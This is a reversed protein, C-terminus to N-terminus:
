RKLAGLVLWFVLCIALAKAAALHIVIVIIAMAAAVALGGIVFAGVLTMVTKTRPDLFFGRVSEIRPMSM